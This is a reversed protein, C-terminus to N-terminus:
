TARCIWRPASLPPSATVPQLYAGGNLDHMFVVSSLSAHLTGGNFNFTGFGGNDTIEAATLDGGNLNFTGSAGQNQTLHVLGLVTSGGALNWNGLNNEAVWTQADTNTFTGGTQNIVGVSSGSAITVNGNGSYKTVAGGSLNLTGMGGFRGVAFWSGM